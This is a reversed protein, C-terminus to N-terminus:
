VFDYTEASRCEGDEVKGRQRVEKEWDGFVLEFVISIRDLLPVVLMSELMAFSNLFHM